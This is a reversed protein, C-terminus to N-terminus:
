GRFDFWGTAIYKDEELDPSSRHQHTYGAPWMVLTGKVPQISKQQFLFETRGGKEVTNLYIMWVMFRSKTSPTNGQECHWTYFGGGPESKQVKYCPTLLDKSGIMYKNCLIEFKSYLCDLIAHRSANFSAHQEIFINYDKRVESSDYRAKGNAILNDALSIIEDCVTNSLANPFVDIFNM